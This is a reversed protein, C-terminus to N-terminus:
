DYPTYIIKALKWFFIDVHIEFENDTVADHAVPFFLELLLPVVHESYCSAKMSCLNSTDKLWHSVVILRCWSFSNKLGLTM